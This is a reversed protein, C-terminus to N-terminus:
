LGGQSIAIDRGLSRPWEDVTLIKPPENGDGIKVVVSGFCMLECIVDRRYNIMWAMGRPERELVETATVPADDLVPIDLVPIAASAACVKIFQRRDM